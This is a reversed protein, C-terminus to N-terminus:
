GAPVVNKQKSSSAMEELLPPIYKVGLYLAAGGFGLWLLSTAVDGFAKAAKGADEGLSPPRTENIVRIQETQGKQADLCAKSDKATRICETWVKANWTHVIGQIVELTFMIARYVVYVSLGILAVSAVAGVAIVWAPLAAAAVIAPNQLEDSDGLGAPGAVNNPTTPDIRVPVGEPTLGIHFPDGPLGELLWDQGQAITARKGSAADRLWGITARGLVLLEDYSGQFDQTWTTPIGAATAPAQLLPSSLAAFVNAMTSHWTELQALGGEMQDALAVLYRSWEESQATSLTVPTAGAPIAGLESGSEM